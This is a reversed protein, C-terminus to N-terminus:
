GQYKQNLFNHTLFDDNIFKTEPSAAKATDIIKEAIEIATTKFDNFQFFRLALGSGPGLELIHVDDFNEKLFSIFPSILKADSKEYESVRAAYQAAIEPDDLQAYEAALENIFRARVDAPADTLLEIAVFEVRRDPDQERTWALVSGDKEFDLFDSM